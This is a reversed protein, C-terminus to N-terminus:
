YEFPKFAPRDEAHADCLTQIWGGKRAKGPEGCVECTDYSDNEAKAIRDFVADDGSGIYFRLGGFKEKVQHVRGDWGLDFLDDILKDLIASWGPGVMEFIDKKEFPPYDERFGYKIIRDSM